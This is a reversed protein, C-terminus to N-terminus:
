GVIEKVTEIEFHEYGFNNKLMKQDQKATEIDDYVKACPEVTVNFMDHYKKNMGGYYVGKIGYEKNNVLKYKM